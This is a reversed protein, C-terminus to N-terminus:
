VEVVTERDRKLNENEGFHHAEIAGNEHVEVVTERRREPTAEEGFHRAPRIGNEHHRGRSIQQSSRWEDSGYTEGNIRWRDELQDHVRREEKFAWASANGFGELHVMLSDELTRAMTDGIDGHVDWTDIGRDHMDHEGKSTLVVHDGFEEPHHHVQPDEGCTGTKPHGLGPSKPPPKRHNNPFRPLDQCGKTAEQSGREVLLGGMIFTTCAPCSGSPTAMRSHPREPLDHCLAALIM